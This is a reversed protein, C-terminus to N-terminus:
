SDPCHDDPYLQIGEELARRFFPDGSALRAQLEAATLPFVDTPYPPIDALFDGLRERYSKESSGLIILLDLDSRVGFDGRALSGFLIVKLVNKGRSAIRLAATRALSLLEERDAFRPGASHLFPNRM